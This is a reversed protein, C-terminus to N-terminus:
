DWINRLENSILNRIRNAQLEVVEPKDTHDICLSMRKWVKSRIPVNLETLAYMIALNMQELEAFAAALNQTSNKLEITTKPQSFLNNVTSFEQNKVAKRKKKGKFIYGVEM